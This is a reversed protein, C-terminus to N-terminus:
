HDHEEATRQNQLFYNCSKSWPSFKQSSIRSGQIRVEQTPMTKRRMEQPLFSLVSRRRQQTNTWSSVRKKESAGLLDSSSVADRSVIM